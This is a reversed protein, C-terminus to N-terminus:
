KRFIEFYSEIMYRATRGNETDPALNFATAMLWEFIRMRIKQGPKM